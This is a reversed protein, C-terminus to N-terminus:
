CNDVFIYITDGQMVFPMNEKDSPDVKLRKSGLDSDLRESISMKKRPM